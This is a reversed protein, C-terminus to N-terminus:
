IKDIISELMKLEMTKSVCEYIGLKLLHNKEADSLTMATYAIIKVTNFNISSQFAELFDYGSFKPMSLDLIILDYMNKLATELGQRGDTMFTVDDGRMDFLIQLLNCSEINDDVVLIQM